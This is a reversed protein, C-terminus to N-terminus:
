CSVPDSWNDELYSMPLSWMSLVGTEITTTWRNCRDLLPKYLETELLLKITTSAQKGHRQMDAATTEETGLNKGLLTDM